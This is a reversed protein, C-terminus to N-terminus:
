DDIGNLKERCHVYIMTTRNTFSIKLRYSRVLKVECRLEPLAKSKHSDLRRERIALITTLKGFLSNYM